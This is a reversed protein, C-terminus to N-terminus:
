RSVGRAELSEYGTSPRPLAQVGGWDCQSTEERGTKQDTFTVPINLARTSEVQYM